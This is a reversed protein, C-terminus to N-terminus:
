GRVRALSGGAPPGADATFRGPGHGMVGVTYSGLHRVLAAYWRAGWCGWCAWSSVIGLGDGETDVLDRGRSADQGASSAPQVVVPWGQRM